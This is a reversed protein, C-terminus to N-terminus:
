KKLLHGSEFKATHVLKSTDNDFVAIAIDAQVSSDFLTKGNILMNANINGEDKLRLRGYDTEVTEDMRAYTIKNKKNDVVILNNETLLVKDTDIGINKLLQVKVSNLIIAPNTPLYLAYSLNKDNLLMLYNNLDDEAKLNDLKFDSYIAYDNHWSAYLPNNRQDKIDYNDMIYEGIYSTIKRAGSPNMHSDKDYFDTKDNIEKYLTHFDLYNVKYEKAIDKVRNSEAQWGTPDPFPLYTLLIEIDSEKCEKIIRELYQIGLTNGETKYNNEFYKTKAPVAVGTRAEAGKEITLTPTYDESTLTNWRNHYTSFKWLFDWKTDGKPFLDEIAAVKNESLPFHDFSLHVQEIPGTKDDLSIMTCDVVILKPQTHDLANKMVWYTTPLRNGHGAFNYSVIGYDNWLEMPFVGNLVHSSGMFLVDFNEEQQYFPEYKSYSNKREVVASLYHLGIGVFLGIITLWTIVKLGEKM